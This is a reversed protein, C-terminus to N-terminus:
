SSRPRCAAHDDVVGGDDAPAGLRALGVVGGRLGAHHRQGAARGSSAAGCPTRTLATDGLRAM